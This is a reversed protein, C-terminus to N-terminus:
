IKRKSSPSGSRSRKRKEKRRRRDQASPSKLSEYEPSSSQGRERSHYKRKHRPSLSQRHRPGPSRRHGKKESHMAARIGSIRKAVSSRSPIPSWKSRETRKREHHRSTSRSRSRRNRSSHHHRDVTKIRAKHSSGSSSIDGSPSRRSRTESSHGHRDMSRSSARQNKITSETSSGDKSPPRITTGEVPANKSISYHQMFMDFAVGLRESSHSEKQKTFPFLTKRLSEHQQFLEVFKNKAEHPNLNSKIMDSLLNQMELQSLQDFMALQKERDVIGLSQNDIHLLAYLKTMFLKVRQLIDDNTSESVSSAPPAASDKPHSQVSTEPESLPCEGDSEDEPNPLDEVLVKMKAKDVPYNQNRRRDLSDLALKIHKERQGSSLELECFSDEIFKELDEGAKMWTFLESQKRHGEGEKTSQLLKSFEREIKMVKQSAAEQSFGKFHFRELMWLRKEVQKQAQERSIGLHQFEKRFDRIVEDDLVKKRAEEKPCDNVIYAKLLDMRYSIREEAEDFTLTQREFELLLNWRDEDEIVREKALEFPVGRREYEKLLELREELMEHATDPDINSSLFDRQLTRKLDDVAIKREEPSLERKEFQCPDRGSHTHRPGKYRPQGCGTTKEVEKCLQRTDETLLSRKQNKKLRAYRDPDCTKLYNMRHRLGIIHLVMNNHNCKTDCLECVFLDETENYMEVVFGLGVVPEDATMSAFANVFQSVGETSSSSVGNRREQVKKPLPKGSDLAKLAKLHKKGSMHRWLLQETPLYLECVECYPSVNYDVESEDEAETSKEADHKKEEFSTSSDPEEYQQSSEKQPPSVTKEGEAPASSSLNIETRAPPPRANTDPSKDGSVPHIPPGKTGMLMMHNPDPATGLLPGRCPPFNQWMGVTPCPPPFGPYSRQPCPGLLSNTPPPLRQNPGNMGWPPPFRAWM